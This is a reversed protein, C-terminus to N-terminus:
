GFTSTTATLSRSGSRHASSELAARQPLVYGDSWSITFSSLMSAIKMAVSAGCCAFCQMSTSLCPLCKVSHLVPGLARTAAVKRQKWVALPAGSEIVGEFALGQGPPDMAELTAMVAHGLRRGHRDAVATDGTYQEAPALEGSAGQLFLCPAGARSTEVVDRMAGVYDPSLLRNAWALTTPHCAYNVITAITQGSGAESVRGVLLTDDAPASPPHGVVIRTGSPEPLDRNTALDCKGYRWTLLARRSMALARRAAQVAADCLRERLPGIYHGGPRDANAPELSPGAHTHSLCLMLRPAALGLRELVTRRISWEDDSSRWWGLDVALLVLPQAGEAEQFTLCTLTLPRHVGEATDGTAAGWNRAYIGVPPTIDERAVGILGEFSPAAPAAPFASSM